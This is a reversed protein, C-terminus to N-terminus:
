YKVVRQVTITNGIELRILYIGTSQDALDVEVTNGKRLDIPLSKLEAGDMRFITLKGQEQKYGHATVRFRDRTPNPYVILQQAECNKCDDIGVTGGTTGGLVSRGRYTVLTQGPYSGTFTVPVVASEGVVKFSISLLTVDGKPLNSLAGAAFSIRGTRNDVMNLLEVPLQTGANAATVQLVEPDFALHVEAGDIEQQNAHLMVPLSFEDGVQHVQGPKVLEMFVPSTALLVGMGNLEEERGRLDEYSTATVEDSRQNFSGSLLSFDLLTVQQDENFDARDDYGSSEQALNYTSALVSFDTITVQDDNNADGEKLEGFNIVNEGPALTAARANRLTHSNKVTVVYNGEAVWVDNISFNGQEDTAPTYSAVPTTQGAPFVDVHLPAKWNAHPAEPRGQLQVNGKLVIGPTPALNVVVKVADTSFLAGDHVVLLFSYTKGQDSSTVSFFPNAKNPAFLTVGEPAIWEYTLEDPDPDSSTSGDLTVIGAATVTIDRGANAVPARNTSQVTWSVSTEGTGAMGSSHKAFPQLDFSLQYNGPLNGASSLGSVSYVTDNVMAFSLGETDVATGNRTFRIADPFATDSLLKANFALQVADVQTSITQNAKFKWKASLPVQDIFLQKEATGVGGNVGTATVKIGTSGGTRLTVPISVAGAAANAVTKLVVEGSLDVQSVTVQSAEDSLNFTVDLSLGSTVGDSDSFGRDPSVALATIAPAASRNVTWSLAQTGTGANGIADTFGELNVTFSYEGDPYTLMSLNNVTWTQLDTNSLQDIALPLVEGNRTLTLSATNFGKVDENFEMNVSAVHQADIGGTTSKELRVVQPGNNDVTLQVSQVKMGAVQDVSKITPLDVELMYTGSETLIRGLGSLYFLQKDARVSDITLLGNQLVEGKLVRFKEPGATTEDIPLNFLVQITDFAAAINGEPLGQFAQVAPVTLFQSWTFQKGTEGSTGYSDQVGAAQVTLNYFGNGSTLAAVDVTFTATDVQSVVVSNDIINPGGQFTLSLDEYTFTAPDISKNFKVTLTQVQESTIEEAPGEISVVEPVDQNRPSWVVTYTVPETSAFKDVFHFKNEYVPPRSVPLTVFTLWANDLPIVQGDSRTVSVLDYKRNGPDALRIYNWGSGSPTVTLTNTFAPGAVAASFNGAAAVAVQETRNGQSFYIMDPTDDADFNDNVLFDNIGDESAGYARISRTLEHLQVGKVLSLEPNGFSNAHVVSAEYSVFKGLLSSTFYWQGIRTQLAPITGFNIDTVGLKKPQGQFNSGVINFNIALGKENEVVKPQASSIMMNVAPGYGQNEVMVALEAPVSPEIEPSTLADDGLINREMFYHLMLNPSPNVTLPVDALPLNVMAQAYPDFYRVTGGFNYVKPVTPAAGQEPIFLFKVIGNQQSAIAGNGAVDSLNTLSKTQIEFVGNSPVGNEDTIQIDISILEMPDTPHGNFIDLTGEFAERTMTLQQSFQVKVSACVANKQGDLIQDLSERNQMFMDELSTYGKSVAEDYATKLAYSRTQVQNWNIIDPYQENPALVGAELAEISTNWRTFFTRITSQPIEYGQMAALISTQVAAPISDLATIYGELKPELDKWADSDIMTGFYERAWAERLEYASLVFQLNDGIEYFVAGLQDSAAAQQMGFVNMSGGATETAACTNIADIIGKPCGIWPPVLDPICPIYDIAGKKALINGLVCTGTALGTGAPGACGAAAGAIANICEVCSSKSTEYEPTKGTGTYTGNTPCIACTPTGTGVGGGSGPNIVIPTGTGTGTSTCSRGSYSFMTGGKQWLGTSINCTYWYVVGAFDQCSLSQQAAMTSYQSPAMGLFDSIAQVSPGGPLPEGEEASARRRMIVPVQISQQALLRAPQYNTVFEYEPDTTPLNLAVDEAAILGHNTLTVKFAYVESGSLQPMVKPMDITVVPMPVNTEFTAELTIDYQDEIATPVVSWSFTIAQYNLFVSTETTGGPNITITGNYPLHKDKEVIIRHKGEPIDAATFVGTADTVGEAYVVGTFYNKVQVRAGAVKPAGESYYTFQNTVDVKLTGASESKKEFTFPINLANGNQAEIAVSGKVPYDFPVEALAMFKLIVIATDGSSMSPLSKPTVTTLWNVQPLGVTINGTTGVGKNVLKVEVLREGKSSSAAVHLQSVDAVLYAGPAQCFYFVDQRQLTGEESVANLSAVEFDTGPSLASGVVAYPLSITANGAVAALTDFLVQAGNPLTVPALTFDTLTRNSLNNISLAGKLTDGLVVRFQPIQGSNIRVGLIDFNDQQATVGMGPFSAGVTYSGAENALPVFRTSYNGSGDTTATVTRRLGNTIVYVEVPENAAAAGNFKTATGTVPVPQGKLYYEGSVSATATYDPNIRFTAPASTNNTLLLETLTSAPNVWYLLKYDGPTNPAQVANQVQVTQGAPIPNAIVDESVQKDSADIVDDKSLYGRVVVGTPATAFGSNKVSVTYNFLAKAQVNANPLSVATLQLDPINQDSVMVWVTGTSFGSATAHFYVQKNSDTVGDNVTTVPVDVYAQGVPIVVTAPVTAENTDSSTLNVTLAVNAPTNRTVRLQGANAFGEPLTLQSATLSLAPGDNDTVTLAASVSGSSTAPANCGCSNVFVSATVQVERDGDALTNDVVGITFTKENENAALPISAPLILTNPLSASLNATFATSSSQATRRLTAQTAFAGGDESVTSTHIVLELGPVDDDKVLITASASEHNSAGANITVPLDVEPVADQELNVVVDAFLSGAPITVSSPVPFRTQSSSNLFVQLPQAPALNTTIRFTPSTGEMADAPLNAITLSPKDNDLITVPASAVEFGTAAVRLVDQVPGETLDNNAATVIFTASANGAPITVESPFAFRAANTLSVSIVLPATFAGTRSVKATVGPGGETLEAASLELSLLKKTTWPTEQVATNNAKGGPVEGIAPDPLLEVVFVGQDGVNMQAPITVERNRELVQGPALVDNDAFAAQQLLTRNQGTASQMYLRETWNIASQGGGVNEVKWSVAVIEGPSVVTKNATVSHVSLDPAPVHNNISLTFKGASTNNGEVVLYYTNGPVLGKKGFSITSGAVSAGIVNDKAALLHMKAQFNAVISFSVSDSVEPVRFSYFIDPAPQNGTGTFRDSYHTTTDTLTFPISAIAVATEFTDGNRPASISFQSNSTDSVSSYTLSTIRVLVQDSTVGSPITWDYLGSNAASETVVTWSAGNTASYEIKVFTSAALANSTWRIQKVQGNYWKEGGNPSMVTITPKSITFASNSVDQIAPDLVDQIKLLYTGPDAEAPISWNYTGTNSVDGAIETWITGNDASLSIMLKRSSALGQSNWRITSTTGTFWVEGGNPATVEIGPKIVTFVANSYDVISPDVADQIRILYTTGPALTTALTWNYSENNAVAEVVTNWTDGNNASYDIRVNPSYAGDKKWTILKNQGVYLVEGGNPSTVSISPKVMRFAVDNSDSISVDNEDSIRILAQESPVLSSPITWDYSGTNTVLAVLTWTDGNDPSYEIKIKSNSMGVNTWSIRKTQGIYWSEDTNPSTLSLIPKAITFPVDSSDNNAPDLVDSVKIYSNASPVTSYPIAWFYQGSNATSAIITTYTAGGDSSLELKVNETTGMGAWQISKSEGIYWVQGDNPVTVGVIPKTITFPLGNTDKSDLYLVSSVRVLCQSSTSVNPVTWIYSGSNSVAEAITSWTEGLDASFAIDVLADGPLGTTTWSINKNEGVLWNENGTNPNTVQIVPAKIVFPANNTDNIDPNSEASVRIFANTTAQDPVVWNYSGYNGQSERIVHWVGDGLSYELKVNNVPLNSASWRITKTEGYYFSEGPAPATVTIVPDNNITFFDDSYDMRCSNSYEYLQILCKSSILNSPLLWEFSGTNPVNNAASGANNRVWDWNAGGDTSYKLSVNGVTGVTTWKIEQLTSSSFTELGNPSTLALYVAGRSVTFNADSSDSVAANYYSQM